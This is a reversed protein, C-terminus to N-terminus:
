LSNLNLLHYINKSPMKVLFPRQSWTFNRSINRPIIKPNNQPKIRPINRLINTPTNELINRPINKHINRPMNRHINKHINRPIPRPILKNTSFIATIYVICGYNPQSNWYEFATWIWSNISTKAPCRSPRQSWAFNRGFSSPWSATPSTDLLTYWCHNKPKQLRARLRDYLIYTSIDLILEFDFDKTLVLDRIIFFLTCCHIKCFIKSFVGKLLFIILSIKSM